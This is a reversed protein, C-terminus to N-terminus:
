GWWAYLELATDCHGVEAFGSIIVNWVMINRHLMKEFVSLADVMSECKAYRDVLVTGVHM